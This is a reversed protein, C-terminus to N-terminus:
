KLQFYRLRAGCDAHHGDIAVASVFGDFLSIDRLTWESKTDPKATRVFIEATEEQSSIVQAKNLPFALGRGMAKLLAEKRAWYQFFSKKRASETLALLKEKELPSFFREVIGDMDPLDKIKEVDVGIDGHQRFVCVCANDSHSLNFQIAEQDPTNKLSPKGYTNIHFERHYFGTGLYMGLLLRLAYRGKIYRTKLLDHRFRESKMKEYEPLMQLAEGQPVNWLDLDVAWIHVQNHLNRCELRPDNVPPPIDNFSANMLESGQSASVFLSSNHSVRNQRNEGTLPNEKYLEAGETVHSTEL